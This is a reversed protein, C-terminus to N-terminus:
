SLSRFLFFLSLCALMEDKGSQRSFIVVFSEGDRLFVSEQIALAAEQQYPRLHVGLVFRSFSVVNKVAERIERQASKSLQFTM